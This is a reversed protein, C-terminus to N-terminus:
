GLTYLSAVGVLYMYYWYSVSASVQSVENVVSGSSTIFSKVNRDLSIEAYFLVGVLGSSSHYYWIHYHTIM